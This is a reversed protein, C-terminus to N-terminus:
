RTEVEYARCREDSTLFILREVRAQSILMRDFPDRHHWPLTRLEAAHQATFPLEEFGHGDFTLDLSDAVTLKGMSAKIAVEANSIASVFIQNRADSIISRHDTTLRPNDTLWWLLVHTDLLCKM